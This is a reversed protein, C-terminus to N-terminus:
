VAFCSAHDLETGCQTLLSRFLADSSVSAISEEISRMENDGIGIIDLSLRDFSYNMEKMSPKFINSSVFYDAIHLIAVHEMSRSALSPTHHFLIACLVSDPLNWKEALWFGIEAHTNGLVDKEVELLSRNDMANLIEEYLEPFYVDLVLLGLDHLLGDIFIDGETSMRLGKAIQRATLGVTLSHNFLRRYTDTIKIDGFMSMVSIGMAISKVNELGIRMIAEDLADTRAPFGFFASNAVSLVRASIAPDREVIERLEHISLMPRNTINLIQYAVEPLTPLQEITQLRAKMTDAM